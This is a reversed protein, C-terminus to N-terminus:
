QLMIMVIRRWRQPQQQITRKSCHRTALTRQVCHRANRARKDLSTLCYRLWWLERLVCKSMEAYFTTMLYRVLWVRGSTNTQRPAAHDRVVFQLWRELQVCEESTPADRRRSLLTMQCRCRHRCNAAERQWSVPTWRHWVFETTLWDTNNNNNNFLKTRWLLFAFFHV